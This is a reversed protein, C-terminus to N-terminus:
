MNDLYLSKYFDLTTFGRELQTMLYTEALQSLCRLTDEGVQFAFLKKDECSCIYRMADLAGSELPMRIGGSEMSRCGACELHGETIDFRNPFLNGCRVCEQLDPTYGALCACRLEFVTKVLMEPLNLKSLGFLCNLILSLMTPDPMDEQCVTEAVQAFYTGLSLRALDKRLGLFLEISHAENITYYNRYEFITFEGYALLQCPAVLPSNKRRLGRARLTLMGHSRTLVTLLSDTENYPTVRLVLGQTTLYM